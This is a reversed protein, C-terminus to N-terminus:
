KGEYKNNAYRLFEQTIDLKNDAHMINGAGQTGLILSYGNAEGFEQIYLNLREWVQASLDNIFYENLEKLKNNESVFRRQLNEKVTGEEAEQLEAILSDVKDKQDQLEKQYSSKLDGTMNFGSFLLVNDIYVTNKKDEVKNFIFHYAVLLVIFTFIQLVPLLYTKLKM